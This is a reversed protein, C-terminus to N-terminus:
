QLNLIAPSSTNEFTFAGIDQWKRVGKLPVRKDLDAYNIFPQKTREDIVKTATAKTIYKLNILDAESLKNIDLTNIKYNSVTAELRIENVVDGSLNGVRLQNVKDEIQVAEIVSDIEVATLVTKNRAEAIDIDTDEYVGPQILRGFSDLYTYHVKYKM